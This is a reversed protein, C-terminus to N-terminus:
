CCWCWRSGTWCSRTAPASLQYGRIHNSSNTNRDVSIVGVVVPFLGPWHYVDIMSEGAHLHTTRFHDIPDHHTDGM